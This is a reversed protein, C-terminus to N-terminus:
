HALLGVKGTAHDFYVNYRYFATLGLNILNGTGPVPPALFFADLGIQPSSGVLVDFAGLPASPTGITVSVDSGGKVVDAGSQGTWFIITEPSGTDLLANACYDQAGSSDHICTPIATDDWAATGNLLASSAPETPLQFTPYQAAEEAPPGIRLTGSTGGFSPAEVIYSPQGPLQAIPDGFGPAYAPANRLGVGVIASYVDFIYGALPGSLGTCETATQCSFSQIIFVPIPSATTRNGLTVTANALVGTAKIGSQFEETLMTSGRSMLSALADSSLASELVQIGESGTDLFAPIAGSNGLELTLALRVGAAVVGGDGLSLSLPALALPIDTPGGDFSGGGAAPEGTSQSGGCATVLVGALFYFSRISYHM